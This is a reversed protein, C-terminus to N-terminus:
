EHMDMDTYHDMGMDMYEQKLLCLHDTLEELLEMKQKKSAHLGKLMAEIYSKFEM